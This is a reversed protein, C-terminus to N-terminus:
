HVRRVRCWALPFTALVGLLSDGFSTGIKCVSGAICVGFAARGNVFM